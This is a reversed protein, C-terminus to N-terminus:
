SEVSEDSSSQLFPDEQYDRKMKKILKQAVQFNGSQVADGLREALNQLKPSTLRLTNLKGSGFATVIKRFFGVDGKTLAKAVDEVKAKDLFSKYSKPALDDLLRAKQTYVDNLLEFRKALKPDSTRLYDKIFGFTPIAGRKGTLRKWNIEQGLDRYWRIAEFKNIGNKYLNKLSSELYEISEKKVKSPKVTRKLDTILGEISQALRTGAARPPIPGKDARKELENFADSTEDELTHLADKLRRNKSVKHAIKEAKGSEASHLLAVSSPSFGAEELSKAKPLFEKAYKAGKKLFSGGLTTGIEAALGAGPSGTLEEVGGGVVAGGTLPLVARAGLVPAAGLAESGRAAIRAAGSTPEEIGLKDEFLETIDPGLDGFKEELSKEPDQLFELRQLQARRQPDSGFAGLLSDLFSVPARRLQNVVNASKQQQFPTQSSRGIGSARKPSDSKFPIFGSDSTQPSPSNEFPIFGSVQSM